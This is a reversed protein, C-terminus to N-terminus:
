EKLMRERKRFDPLYAGILAYFAPGHNKYVIHALEHVVVYEVAAPPYAMLRWSFCLSDRGSCSGYRKRASTIKVGSPRVGMTEAWRATLPPLEAAARARLAAEAAADPEPREAARLRQKEAHEGIWRAHARLFREIEAQPCAMPARVLLGGQPTIEAALTRRRSRKLTYEM